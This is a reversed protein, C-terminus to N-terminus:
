PESGEILEVGRLIEGTASDLGTRAVERREWAAWYALEADLLQNRLLLLSALDIKGERYAVDLLSQNERIPALMDAELLAVEQAASAHARLADEVEVRVRLEAARRLQEVEALEARRRGVVGQNRNFLPLELGVALGLRPNQAPDERTALAALRLNPLSERRALRQEQRAREVDRELARVDPRAALSRRIVDDLAPMSSTAANSAASGTTQLVVGPEVAILRGLALAATVRESETELARARARAAEISALNAELRSVEGEALQTRVAQMLRANLGDVEAALEARREAAALGHHAREVDALVRRGVDDFGSRSSEYAAESAEMRLGRQGALELEIGIQAEFRSSLGRGPSRADFDLEPNFPLTGAGRM